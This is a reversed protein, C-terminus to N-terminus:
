SKCCPKCLEKGQVAQTQVAVYVNMRLEMKTVTPKFTDAEVCNRKPGASGWWLLKIHCAAANLSAGKEEM